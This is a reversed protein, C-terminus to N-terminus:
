FPYYELKMTYNLFLTYRGVNEKIQIFYVHRVNVKWFVIRESCDNATKNTWCQFTRWFTTTAVGTVDCRCCPSSKTALTARWLTTSCCRCSLHVHLLVVLTVSVLNITELSKETWTNGDFTFWPCRSQTKSRRWKSLRRARFITSGKKTEIKSIKFPRSLRM